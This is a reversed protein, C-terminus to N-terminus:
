RGPAPSIARQVQEITVVGRLFDDRDVAFVAGPGRLSPQGLLAQLPQDTGILWDAREGALAERVALAPRGAEIEADVTERRLVGLFRNDGDVVAVFGWDQPEFVQERAELLTTDASLTFPHPDMVDAVTVQDLRDSVRGQLIATRAAPLLLWALAAFWIGDGTDGRILLYVGFGGLLYAFGVGGRGAIQLGRNRSGTLKWATALVIRGGDLPFGPALNFVFLLANMAAVFSLLVYAPSASADAQLTAADVFHSSSDVLTASLACLVFVVLTAAPGAAAIAFESGPTRPESRLQAMGGFFWLDIREVEIGLRRAVLAHGLEHLILSVYFLLACGVAVGYATTDSSDLAQQFNTSLLFILLFLVVFWSLSVGIRIGFIRMLQISGGAFPM